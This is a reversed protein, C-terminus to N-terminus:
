TQRPMLRTIVIWPLFLGVGWAVYRWPPALANDAVIVGGVILTLVFSIGAKSM